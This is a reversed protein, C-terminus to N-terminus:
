RPTVVEPRLSRDCERDELPHRLPRMGTVEAHAPLPPEATVFLAERRGHVTGPDVPRGRGRPRPREGDDRRRAALSRRSTRAGGPDRVVLGLSDVVGHPYITGLPAFARAQAPTLGFNQTATAPPAVVHFMRRVDDPYDRYPDFSSVNVGRRRDLRPGAPDLLRSLWARRDGEFDYAAEVISIASYKM